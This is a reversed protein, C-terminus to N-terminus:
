ASVFLFMFYIVNVFHAKQKGVTTYQRGTLHTNLQDPSRYSLRTLLSSMFPLIIKRNRERKRIWTEITAFVAMGNEAVCHM